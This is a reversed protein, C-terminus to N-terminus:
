MYLRKGNQITKAPNSVGKPGSTQHEKWQWSSRNQYGLLELDLGDSTVVVKLYFIDFGMNEGSWRWWMLEICWCWRSGDTPLGDTVIEALENGLGNVCLWSRLCLQCTHARTRREYESSALCCYYYYILTSLNLPQQSQRERQGREGISYSPLVCAVFCFCPTWWWM